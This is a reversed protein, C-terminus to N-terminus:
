KLLAGSFRMMKDRTGPSMLRLYPSSPIKPSRRSTSPQPRHLSAANTLAGIRAKLSSVRWSYESVATAGTLQSATILNAEARSTDPKPYDKPDLRRSAPMGNYFSSNYFGDSVWDPEM